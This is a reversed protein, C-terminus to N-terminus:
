VTESKSMSELLINIWMFIPEQNGIQYGSKTGHVLNCRFHYISLLCGVMKDAGCDKLFENIMRNFRKRNGDKLVYFQNIFKKANEEKWLQDKQALVHNRFATYAETDYSQICAATEVWKINRRDDHIAIEHEFCNWLITFRGITKIAESPIEGWNIKM